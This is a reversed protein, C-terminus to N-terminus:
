REGGRRPHRVNKPRASYLAAALDKEEEDSGLASVDMLSVHGKVRGDDLPNDIRARMDKFLKRTDMFGGILFWVTSVVGVVGAMLLSTIFFYHGWWAIPWPSILNWILVVIFCLGIQYGFTFLFVSWTIVKDGSTFEPTIGILKGMATKWTWRTGEKGVPKVGDISYKGRHLLRELNYPGRYTLLSGVVYAVVGGVLCMFLVEYSNIPFKVPNMTWKVYPSTYSTVGDFFHGIAPAWNMRVLFPYVAQAWYRQLLIGAVSLGSGVFLAAYAGVANGFRSYLGLVMVPGAGGVWIAGVITLYLQIYDVNVFFLSCLFFFVSVGFSSWRLWRLHQEPTLPTKRFPMLVDQVITASSNFTRSDDTALIVLVMLLAFLGMMGAPLLHRLALAMMQQGYLARFKQFMFNGQADHGLADSAANMYPTDLNEARSLPKDAGITHRQLPVAALQDHLRARMKADPVVEGAVKDALELRVERAETTFKAHSMFTIVVIAIVTFMLWSFGNRWSGLIGAMKQEHPTRGASSTDNGMWSARNLINSMIGVVLAFLNFDRLNEIDFPNLFSERPVRDMMVPAIERSWSFRIMIFIVIVVFIPYSMLGQVCDTLILALRGGPWMVILAMALIAAVVLAYTPVTIGLVSVFHPIGLFYIFFDAAIAPGIANVLMEGLTRLATAFVRFSRNYRMELFQGISLAKTERFRYVCYGTLSMVIAVPAALTEWFTLAYGTQYKAEVLAVLTIVGLGSELGGVAIVYRGAMRGAALYDAVGHIYKRSYVAMWLVFVVPVITILWDIWHM